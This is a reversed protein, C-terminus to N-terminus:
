HKENLSRSNFHILSIDGTKDSLQENFEESLYYKCTNNVNISEDSDEIDYIDNVDFPHNLKLSKMCYFRDIRSDNKLQIFKM